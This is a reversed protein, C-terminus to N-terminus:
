PAFIYDEDALLQAIEVLTTDREKDVWELVKPAYMEARYSLRDGGLPKPTVSGTKRYIQYWRIASAVCVDFTPRKDDHVGVRLPAKTVISAIPM